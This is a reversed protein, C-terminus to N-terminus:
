KDLERKLLLINFYILREVTLVTTVAELTCRRAACDPEPRRRCRENFFKIRRAWWYRVDMLKIELYEIFM